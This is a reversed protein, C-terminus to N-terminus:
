SRASGKAVPAPDRHQGAIIIAKNGNRDVGFTIHSIDFNPQVLRLDRLTRAMRNFESKSKRKNKISYTAALQQQFALGVSEAPIQIAEFM